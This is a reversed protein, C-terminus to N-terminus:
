ATPPGRKGSYYLDPSDARQRSQRALPADAARSAPVSPGVGCTAALSFAYVCVACVRNCDMPLHREHPGCDHAMFAPVRSPGSEHGDHPVYEVAVAAFLHLAISLLAISHRLVSTM